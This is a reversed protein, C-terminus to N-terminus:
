PSMSSPISCWICRFLLGQPGADGPGSRLGSGMLVGHGSSLLDGRRRWSGLGQKYFPHTVVQRIIVCNPPVFHQSAIRRKLVRCASKRKDDKTTAVTCLRPHRQLVYLSSLTQLGHFLPFSQRHNPFEGTAQNTIFLSIENAEWGCTRMSPTFPLKPRPKQQRYNRGGRCCM